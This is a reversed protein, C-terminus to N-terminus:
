GIRPRPAAGQVGVGGQSGGGPRDALFEPCRPTGQDSVPAQNIAVQM